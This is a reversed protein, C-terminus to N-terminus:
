IPTYLSAPPERRVDSAEGDEGEPVRGVEEEEM